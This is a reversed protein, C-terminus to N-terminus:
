KKVGFFLKGNWRTGTIARAAASLSKYQVGDLEYCKESVATVDYTKGKWERVYHIMSITPTRVPSGTRLRAEKQGSIELLLERDGQSLGGLYMEQVKYILRNRLTRPHLPCTAGPFFEAFMASLGPYEMNEIQAIKSKMRERDTM